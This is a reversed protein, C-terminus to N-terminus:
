FDIMTRLGLDEARRAKVVVDDINNWGDAPDVWVRLRIANVNCYDRLLQMLEMEVPNEGPTYFKRGKAEMETIWSVDAGYAYGSEKEVASSPKQASSVLISFAMMVAFILRKM